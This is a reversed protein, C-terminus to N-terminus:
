LALNRLQTEVLWNGGFGLLLYYQIVNQVVAVLECVVNLILQLFRGVRETEIEDV